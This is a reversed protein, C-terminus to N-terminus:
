QTTRPLQGFTGLSNIVQGGWRKKGGVIDGRALYQILFFHTLHLFVIKCIQKASGPEAFCIQM